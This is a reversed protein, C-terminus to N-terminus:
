DAPRSQVSLRRGVVVATCVGIMAGAADAFWDGWEASRGVPIQLLEDLAAYLLIVMWLRAARGRTAALGWWPLAFGLVAYAGFHLHKDTTPLQEMVRQVPLHTALFMALWYVAIGARITTLRWTEQKTSSDSPKPREARRATRHEGM